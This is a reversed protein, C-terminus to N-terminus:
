FRTHYHGSYFEAVIPHSADVNFETMMLRTMDVACREHIFVRYRRNESFEGFVETEASGNECWKCKLPWLRIGGVTGM